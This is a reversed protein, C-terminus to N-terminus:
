QQGVQELTAAQAKERQTKREKQIRATFGDKWREQLWKVQGNHDPINMAKPELILKNWAALMTRPTPTRPVRKGRAPLIISDWDVQQVDLVEQADVLDILQRFQEPFLKGRTSANQSTRYRSQCQIASRSQVVEAVSTWFGFRFRPEGAGKGSELEKLCTDYRELEDKGWKGSIRAKARYKLTQWRRTCSRRTRSLMIAAPAWSDPSRERSAILRADEEHTWNGERLAEAARYMDRVYERVGGQRRMPVSSAVVTWFDRIDVGPPGSGLFVIEMPLKGLATSASAVAADIQQVEILSYVGTKLEFGQWTAYQKLMTSNLGHSAVFEEPTQKLVSLPPPLHHKQTASRRQKATPPTPEATAAASHAFRFAQIPRPPPRHHVLLHPLASRPSQLSFM